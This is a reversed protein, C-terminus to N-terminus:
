SRVGWRGTGTAAIYLFLWCYLVALEGGNAIPWPGRPLHVQFYAVAMQGSALFAAPSTFLGLAISLGAATEIIGALGLQSALPMPGPAGFWGFLKQLGHLSFLLGAVIRLVAYIAAGHPALHNTM